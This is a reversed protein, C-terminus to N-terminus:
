SVRRARGLERGGPPGVRGRAPATLIEAADLGRRYRAYLTDYSLGLARAWSKLDRTEGRYTIEVRGGRTRQRTEADPMRAPPDEPPEDRYWCLRDFHAPDLSSTRVGPRRFLATVGRLKWMYWHFFGAKGDPEWTMAALYLATFMTPEVDCGPYRRQIGPVARLVADSYSAVLDLRWPEIPGSLHDVLTISM